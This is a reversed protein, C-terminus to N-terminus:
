STFPLDYYSEELNNLQRGEIFPVVENLIDKDGTIAVYRSTAFPLWVYDDSCLTRVGRGAPPHWWHQVDGEKFQRSAAILIQERAMGSDAHLLALVDQLQDRFGFAGGSQYFGTRGWLRCCIVQYLLWGNTLINLAKDPTDIQIIGLKNQWYSKVTELSRTAAKSGRFRRIVDEAEYREKGAGMRFVIERTTGHNVEFPIRIATCPDFGAGSKGSLKARKMADPYQLTGNRGIFETRDCTFEYQPDDVDFFAVRNPFDTNYSNKAILGGTSSNLETVIHM